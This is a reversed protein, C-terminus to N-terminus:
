AAERFDIWEVDKVKGNEDIDIPPLDRWSEQGLVEAAPEDEVPPEYSDMPITAPAEDAVPNEESDANQADFGASEQWSQEFSPVNDAQMADGALGTFDGHTTDMGQNLQELISLFEPDLAQQDVQEVTNSDVSDQEDHGDESPGNTSM